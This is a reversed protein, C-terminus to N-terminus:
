VAKKVPVFGKEAIWLGGIILFLGLLAQWTIKEGLFIVATLMTVAPNLYIYNSAKVIGIEKLIRNWVVFCVLSAVVSLFLLNSWVAPIALAEPHFGASPIFLFPILTVLGWFFVKRTIFVTDYRKNLRRLIISYFAWAFAGIMSLIDGIPNIELVFSGNFVVLAMGPLAILTGAWLNKGIKDKPYFLRALLATWLPATCVLMSVNSALTTELATNEAIFYLSGGTLGAGVMLLEDKLSDAFLKRSSFFWIGIYAVLFRYGFIEVPTLGNNILVKTSVFTTGWVIITVIAAVHFWYQKSKGM